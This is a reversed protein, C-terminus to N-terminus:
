ESKKGFPLAIKEKLSSVAEGAKETVGAAAEQLETGAGSVVEGAQAKVDGALVGAQQQVQASVATASGALTDSVQSAFGSVDFNVLQGIVTGSLAKVLIIKSLDNIDKIDTFQENLNIAFEKVVPKEGLSYDKYVVKGIKLELFDISVQPAPAPKKEAAPAPKKSESVAKLADLNLKGDKNKIVNFQDLHIMIAEIHTKGKFVAPLDFDLYIKPMDLMTPDEFDKPNSLELREIDIKTNWLDLKLVGIGLPLGTAIETGKEIAAKVIVDKALVFVVLIVILLLFLNRLFKM